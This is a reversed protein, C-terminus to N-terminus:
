SSWMSPNILAVDSCAIAEPVFSVGRAIAGIIEALQSVGDVGVVVRDIEPAALAFGICAELASYGTEHLWGEWRSWLHSWQAFRPPRAREPMLLLGQLFASRSHIEVGRQKLRDLWGSEEIRRDVVNFPVQVLDLSYKTTLMELEQPDYISVGIKGVYGREQVERLGRYIEPGQDGLLMSSRHCLLGHLRDVGLRACSGVTSEEVWEAPPTLYGNPASLKSVVSWGDVGLQGLISESDGYSPATDLTRIENAAALAFIARARELTIPGANNAIGYTQGFQATGLAIKRTLGPGV